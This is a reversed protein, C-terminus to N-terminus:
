KGGCKKGAKGKAQALDSVIPVKEARREKPSLHNKGAKSAFVNEGTRCAVLALDICITGARAVAYTDAILCYRSV